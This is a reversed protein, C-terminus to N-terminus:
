TLQGHNVQLDRLRNSFYTWDRVMVDLKYDRTDGNQATVRITVRNPNNEESLHNDIIEYTANVSELEINLDLSTVNPRVDVDYSTTLKDFTPSIIGDVQLEKIYNNSDKSRIVNVNYTKTRNDPATVVLSIHNDNVDLSYTNNGSVTVKSTEPTGIVTIKDTEYPVEVTYNTESPAFTPDLEGDSLTISELNLNYNRYINLTYISTNGNEATTSITIQNNGYNLYTDGAGFVKTTTYKPKAIINVKDVTEEVDVSYIQSDSLANFTPTLDYEVDDDEEVERIVQLSSLAPNSNKDKRVIIQYTKTKTGEPNTVVINVKNDGSVFNQNGAVYVKAQSNSTKYSLTLKDVDEGVSMTYKNTSRDFTPSLTGESASLSILDVDEDAEKILNIHYISTNGTINSTSILTVVNSGVKLTYEGNGEVTVLESNDVVGEITAKDNVSPIIVSYEYVNPDFNPQLEVFSGTTVTINKLNSDKEEGKFIHVIYDRTTRGDSIVQVTLDNYGEVLYTYGNIVVRSQPDEPIAIIDELDIDTITLPVKMYYEQTKKNFTPSLVYGEVELNSLYTNRSKGKVVNLHYTKTLANLGDYVEIDVMTNGVPLQYNDVEEGDVKVKVTQQDNLTTYAVDLPNYEYPVKIEYTSRSGTFAPSLVFETPLFELEEDYNLGLDALEKDTKISRHINVTYYSTDGNEAQLVIKNETDDETLTIEGTGSLIAIDDDSTTASITVKTENEYLYLDYTKTVPTFVPTLRGKNASLSDLQTFNSKERTVVITYVKTVTEDYSKVTVKYDTTQKTSLSVTEQKTIKANPDSSTAIVDNPTLTAKENPVTVHYTYTNEDFDYEDTFDYGEVYLNSLLANDTRDRTVNITYTDTSNGDESTITIERQSTGVAVYELSNGTVTAFKNTTDVTFSLQTINSAIRLNYTKTAAAFEPDLTGNSPTILTVSADSSIERNVIIKYTKTVTGDYSKVTVLYEVQSKGILSTDGQKTIKANPDSSTAIIESPSIVEKSNPVHINYVPTQEIDYEGEDFEYGIVELNSLDANDTRDRIVNITYQATNENDEATITIVRQSTGVALNLEENGTVTAFEDTKNVNFSLKDVNSGVRLTYTSNNEDFVPDLTGSSPIINTITTNSSAPRYVNVTYTREKGSLSKVVIELRNNGLIITRNGLGTVTAGESVTGAFNIVKTGPAVNIIYSDTKSDFEPSIAQAVNNVKAAFSLLYNDNAEARTVIVKYNRRIGLNVVSVVFENKGTELDKEGLGTVTSTAEAVQGDITIKEVDSAVSVNYTLTTQNFEPDLSGESVTLNSLFNNVYAQRVVNLTYTEHKEDDRSSTNILVTNSGVNFNENGVITYTGLRDLMTPHINLETTENNVIINYNFTTSEFTPLIDYDDVEINTLLASIAEERTVNLTITKTKGSESTIVVRVTNNPGVQFNSNGSVAYSATLDQLVINLNLSTEEYPVSVNYISYQESYVKDMTGNLVELVNVTNNDSKQRYINITYTKTTNDESTVVVNIINEGTNLNVVGTGDVTANKDDAEAIINVSTINNPIDTTLSYNTRNSDFEPILKYGEVELKSLNANDSEQREVNFIYEKTSTGNEATVKIKVTYNGVDTWSNGTVVYTANLDMPTITTFDLSNDKTTVNYTYTDTGFNISKDKIVVNSLRAEDNKLRNVLIQYDRIKDDQGTVRITFLNNGTHLDHTGNGEVTANEDESTGNFTMQTTTYPVEVEYFQNTKDFTPELSGDSITLSSLYTSFESFEQRIVRINYTKESEDQATVKVSVINEGVVLNTNGSVEVTADNNETEYVAHVEEVDYPVRVVYEIINKDFNPSLKGEKIFLDSLNANASKDRTVTINYTLTTTNDEALTTLVINNEGAVLTYNRNGTVTTTSAEPTGNIDISTVDSGVNISYNFENKDFSPSLTGVSNVISSLYGNSNPLRTIDIQYTKEAGSESKVKVLIENLGVRLSYRANGTVKALNSAPTAVVNVWNVENEVTLTFHDDNAESDFAPTLIFEQNDNSVRLGSLGNNTDSPRTITINYTKTTNDEARVLIRKLNTGVNIKNNDLLQYTAFESELEINFEVESTGIPATLEYNLEDADFEPTYATNVDDLLVKLSSINANNDKERFINIKYTEVYGDSEAVTVIDFYNNGKNLTKIGAGSVNTTVSEPNAIINVESVDKDVTVKYTGFNIKNFEPILDYNITGDTSKVALSELYINTNPERYVNLTYTQTEGNQAVIMIPITNQGVHLNGDGLLYATANTDDTEYYLQMINEALETNKEETNNIVYSDYDNGVTFYYETVEPDFVISINDPSIVKLKSLDNDGTMDRTVRYNYVSSNTKDESNVTITFLNANPRVSVAGEGSVDQFYHGKEVNFYIERIKYPITLEYTTNDSSFTSPEVNCYSEDIACYSPVLGSITINNPLGNSNAQRTFNIYYIRVDGSQATVSVPVITRGQPDNNVDAPIYHTGLGDITALSSSPRAQIKVEEETDTLTVNYTYTTVDFVEEWTGGDVAGVDTSLSELFNNKNLDVFTIRAYGNGANGTMTDETGDHKPMTSTGDIMEAEEFVKGSYHVQCESNDNGTACQVDDIEKPSINDESTVAVVGPYGSIFSSGGAGYGTANADSKVGAGGGFYGAGGGTGTTGANGGVGFSGNGASGNNTSAGGIGGTTQTGGTGHYSGSTALGRLAGGASSSSGAGGAGAVMIRSALSASNNWETKSSGTKLRIDTAGGGGNGTTSTGGGNWGGATTTPQNGVYVYVKEDAELRLLGKTYAGNGGNSGGQAGWLEVLYKGNKPATFTQYEGTYSYGDVFSQNVRLYSITYVQDEAIHPEHVTITITGSPELMLDAGTVTVEAEPDFVDTTINLYLESELIDLGYTDTLPDYRPDLSSDYGEIKLISLKNSHENPHDLPTRVANITYIRTEGAANTVPINVVTTKGYEVYYEQNLGAVTSTEEFISGTLTFYQEYTGLTLTYNTILPNFVPDLVGKTSELTELCKDEITMLYLGDLADNVNDVDWNEDAPTYGVDYAYTDYAKVSNTFVCFSMLIIVLMILINFKNKLNIIRNKMM